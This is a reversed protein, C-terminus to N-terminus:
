RRRITVLPLMAVADTKNILRRQRAFFGLGGTAIATAVMALTGPEPVAHVAVFNGLVALNNANGFAGPAVYYDMFLPDGTILVRGSGPGLAGGPIEMLIPTGDRTGLVHAASTLSDPSLINHWTAGFTRQGPALPSPGFTGFPGSLVSSTYGPDVFLGETSGGLPGTLDFAGISGTELGSATQLASLVSNASDLITPRDPLTLTTHFTDTTIILCHGDLVFNALAAAEAPTIMTRREGLFFIDLGVLSAADAVAIDPALTVSKPLLGGPGFNSPDALFDRAESWDRGPYPTDPALYVGSFPAHVANSNFGGIVVPGASATSGALVAFVLPCLYAVTHGTMLRRQWYM